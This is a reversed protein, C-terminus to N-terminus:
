VRGALAKAQAQQERLEPAKKEAFAKLAPNVGEEAYKEVVDLATAQATAAATLYLKDFKAPDITRLEAVTAAKDAPLSTNPKIPLGTENIAVQLEGGAKSRTDIVKQAYQKVDWNQSRELAVRSADIEFIDTTVSTQVLGADVPSAAPAAAVPAAQHEAQKSGGDGCAALLSLAGIAFLPRILSYTM